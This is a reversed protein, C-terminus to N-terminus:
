QKLASVCIREALESFAPWGLRGRPLPTPGPLWREGRREESFGGPSRVRASSSGSADTASSCKAASPEGQGSKSGDRRLESPGSGAAAWSDERGGSVGGAGEAQGQKRPSGQSGEAWVKVLSCGAATLGQVRGAGRRVPRGEGAPRHGGRRSWFGEADGAVAGARLGAEAWGAGSLWHVVARSGARHLLPILLLWSSGFLSEGRHGEEQPSWPLRGDQNGRRGAASGAEERQPPRVPM